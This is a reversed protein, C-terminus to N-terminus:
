DRMRRRQTAGLSDISCADVATPADGPDTHLIVMPVDALALNALVDTMVSAAALAYGPDVLGQPDFNDETQCPIYMRGRNRPGGIISHKKVLLALNATAGEGTQTGELNTTTEASPGTDTPGNKVRCKRISNGLAYLDDFSSDGLANMVAGAVASPSMDTENGVGFVVTATEHLFSGEWDLSVQSFGADQAM